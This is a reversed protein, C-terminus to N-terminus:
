PTAADKCLALAEKFKRIWAPQDPMGPDLAAFALNATEEAQEKEGKLCHIQTIGLLCRLRGPSNPPALREFLALSKRFEEMAPGLEEKGKLGAGRLRRSNKDYWHPPGNPRGPWSAISIM